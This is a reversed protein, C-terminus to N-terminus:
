RTKGPKQLLSDVSVSFYDAIAICILKLGYDVASKVQNSEPVCAAALASLIIAAEEKHKMRGSGTEAEENGRNNGPFCRAACRLYACTDQSVEHFTDLGGGGLARNGYGLRETQESGAPPLIRVAPANREFDGRRGEKNPLKSLDANVFRWFAKIIYTDALLIDAM